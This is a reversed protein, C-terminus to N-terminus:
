ENRIMSIEEENSSSLDGWSVPDVDRREAVVREREVKQELIDGVLSAVGASAMLPLIVDYDRTLEFLLLSATLPARFLAALTSAAGVMAYAPVDALEVANGGLLAPILQGQIGHTLLWSAMNHFSAGTMAGLFLSPAFTGGVLGSGAVLATSCIKVVLLTLILTTPLSNNALLGNLTEYGFFLIQPFALGILGCLFGGIIPKIANPMATFTARIPSPGLEGDFLNKAWKAAQSFLAAVIGSTAGLLLYLPMEMLPAKLTYESLELVLHNGLLSRSVLASLVSSLLIASIKSSSTTFLQLDIGDNDRRNKALGVFAGQVIELACFVGAIPANFGASVGAAAGCSLLLRNRQIRRRIAGRSSPDPEGAVTEMPFGKMCIQSLAMGLEVAPGEPGLSNGTGLTMVAAAAKRLFRLSKNAGALFQFGSTSTERSSEIVDKVTGRLGPPFGGGFLSLLGVILGGIAPILPLLFPSTSLISGYSLQRVADISLKFVGVSWGSAVGIIAAQTLVYIESGFRHVDDDCEQDEDVIIQDTSESSNMAVAEVENEEDPSVLIRRSSRRASGRLPGLEMIRVASPQQLAVIENLPSRPTFAMTSLLTSFVVLVLLCSGFAMNTVAM